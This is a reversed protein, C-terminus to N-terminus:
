LVISVYKVYINIYIITIKLRLLLFLMYLNWNINLFFFFCWIKFSSIRKYKSRHQMCSRTFCEFSGTNTNFNGELKLVISGLIVVRRSLLIRPLVSVRVFLGSCISPHLKINSTLDTYHDPLPSHLAAAPLNNGSDAGSPNLSRVGM